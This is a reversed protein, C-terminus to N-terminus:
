NDNSNPIEVWNHLFTLWSEQETNYQTTDPYKENVRFQRQIIDSILECSGDHYEVKVIYNGYYFNPDYAVPFLIILHPEVFSLGALDEAFAAFQESPIEGLLEGCPDDPDSYNYLIESDYDTSYIRINKIDSLNYMLEYSVSIEWHICGVLSICILSLLIVTLVIKKMVNEDTTFAPRNTM